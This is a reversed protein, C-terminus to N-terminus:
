LRNSAAPTLEGMSERGLDPASVSSVEVALIEEFDLDTQVVEQVESTPLPRDLDSGRKRKSPSGQKSGGGGRGSLAMIGKRIAEDAIGLKAMDVQTLTKLRELSTYGAPLLKGAAQMAQSMTLSPSGRSKPASTLLKLFTPLSVAASTSAKPPM